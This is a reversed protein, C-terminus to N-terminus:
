STGGEQAGDAPALTRIVGLGGPLEPAITMIKIGGAAADLLQASEDFNPDRIGWEPQAGKFKPNIYPGEIHLGLIEAAFPDDEEAAIAGEVARMLEEHRAAITTALYGITGYKLLARSIRRIGEAGDAM